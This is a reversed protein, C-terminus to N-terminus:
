RSMTIASNEVWAVGRAPLVSASLRSRSIAPTCTTPTHSRPCITGGRGSITRPSSLTGTTTPEGSAM